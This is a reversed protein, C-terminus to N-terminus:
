VRERCSARGIKSLHLVAGVLKWCAEERPEGPEPLPWSAIGPSTATSAWPLRQTASVALLRMWFNLELPSYKLWNPESPEPSPWNLAGEARVSSASPSM